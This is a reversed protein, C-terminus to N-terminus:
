VEEDRIEREGTTGMGTVTDPLDKFVGIPEIHVAEGKKAKKLVRIVALVILLAVAGGLIWGLYEYLASLIDMVCGEKRVYLLVLVVVFRKLKNDHEYM